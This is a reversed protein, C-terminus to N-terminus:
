VRVFTTVSKSVATKDGRFISDMCIQSGKNWKVLSALYVTEYKGIIIFCFFRQVQSGIYFEAKPIGNVIRCVELTIQTKTFDFHTTRFQVVLCFVTFSSIMESIISYICWNISEIGASIIKETDITGNFM